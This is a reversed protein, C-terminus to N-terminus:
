KAYYIEATAVNADKLLALAKSSSHYLKEYIVTTIGSQIILEACKTCPSYNCYLTAGNLSIGEKAASAVANAEAHVARECSCTTDCVEACPSQGPLPGNYGTSVIRNNQTIVCGVQARDCTGRLAILGAIQLYLQTRTIRERM